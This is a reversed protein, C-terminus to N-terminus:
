RKLENIYYNNKTINSAGSSVITSTPKCNGYISCDNYTNSFVFPITLVILLLYILGKSKM